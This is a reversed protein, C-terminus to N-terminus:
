GVGLNREYMEEVKAFCANVEYTAAVYSRGRGGMSARLGPDGALREIASSLARYDGRPVVLATGGGDCAEMLGPIDTIVLPTGSAQCEVASVGFSESESESAVVGVDFNAWERAAERQPIFGLWTVYGGMGLREALGKLEPEQTGTGAIRLEVDLDPRRDHLEAVARLLTEIGYKRELGKVAGVVLGGDRKDRKDPGFLEMDVGFPTIAIPKDTYKRTEQAMAESTSLLWACGGLSRKLLARHLPSKKPFAYVDNGWVSLYYPRRCALSCVLGYSSAYHAHVVDPGLNDILRRAKGVTTMYGLKQLESGLRESDNKLWYIHVGALEAAADEGPQEFGAVHVDHGQGSFYRCWKITHYNNINSLYLIRM